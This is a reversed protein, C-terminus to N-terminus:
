VGTLKYKCKCELCPPTIKCESEPSATKQIGSSRRGRMVKYGQQMGTEQAGKRQGTNLSMFVHICVYKIYIRLFM